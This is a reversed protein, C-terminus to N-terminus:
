KEGSAAKAAAWQELATALADKARDLQEETITGNNLAHHAENIAVNAYAVAHKLKIKEKPCCESAPSEMWSAAGELLVNYSQVGKYFNDTPTACAVMTWLGLVLPLVLLRKLGSVTHETAYQSNRMKAAAWSVMFAAAFLVLGDLALQVKDPPVVGAKNLGATVIWTVVVGINAVLGTSIGQTIPDQAPRPQQPLGGNPTPAPSM